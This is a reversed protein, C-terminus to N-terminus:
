SDTGELAAQVDLVAKKWGCTIPDDGAYKECRPHGALAEQVRDVVAALQDRETRLEELRRQTLSALDAVTM